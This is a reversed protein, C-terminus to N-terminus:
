KNFLKSWLSVNKKVLIASAGIQNNSKRDVKPGVYSNTFPIMNEWKEANRLGIAFIYVSAEIHNNFSMYHMKFGNKEFLRELAMSTFRWYDGYGHAHMEQLFPVVTIVVDKSLDCINKFAQDMEFVHELVTHNFVVDYKRKLGDSLPQELDLIIEKSNGTLGRNETDFNSIDYASANTFYERYTKGQKDEDKYGSVNIISGEFLPAFKKLEGNSWIRPLRFIRDVNDM